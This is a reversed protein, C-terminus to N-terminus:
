IVITQNNQVLKRLFAKLFGELAILNLSSRIFEIETSLNQIYFRSKRLLLAVSQIQHMQYVM